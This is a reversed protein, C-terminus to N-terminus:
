YRIQKAHRAYYGYKAPNKMKLCYNCRALIDLPSAVFQKNISAGEGAWSMVTKGEKLLAIATARITLIDEETDIAPDLSLFNTVDM